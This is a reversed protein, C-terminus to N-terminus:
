ICNGGSGKWAICRYGSLGSQGLGLSWSRSWRCSRCGIDKRCQLSGLLCTFDDVLIQIPDHLLGDFNRIQLAFNIADGLVLFLGDMSRAKFFIIKHNIYRICSVCMYVYIIHQHKMYFIYYTHKIPQDVQYTELGMGEFKVMSSEEHTFTVPSSYKCPRHGEWRGHFRWSLIIFRKSLKIVSSSETWSLIVEIWASPAISPYVASGSM